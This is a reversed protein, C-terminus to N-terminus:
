DLLMANRKSEGEIDKILENYNEAHIESEQNSENRFHLSFRETRDLEKRGWPGYLGHFEGLWLVAKM